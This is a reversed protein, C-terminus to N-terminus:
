SGLRGGLHMWNEPAVEFFGVSEPELLRMDDLMGRRLGLGAGLLTM